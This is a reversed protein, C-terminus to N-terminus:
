MLCERERQLDDTVSLNSLGTHKNVRRDCLESHFATNHKRPDM